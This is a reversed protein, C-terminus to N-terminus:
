KSKGGFLGQPKWLLFIFLLVFAIADKYGSPLFWVGINELLGLLYSGIVSGPIFNVSGMIAGTFGRVILDTGTFPHVSREIIVAIGAVAALASGLAFSIIAYKKDNLGVVRSLLPSDAVARLNRGVSTRHMLWFIGVFLLLSVVITGVQSTTITTGLIELAITNSNYTRVNSGFIVVILNQMLLMMSVSAILLIVNSSNRKQLPAYVLVYMLVGILTTVLITLVTNPIFSMSASFTYFLYSALIVAAGHAFHIFKNTSYILSFGAAILAYLSGAVLGNVLIQGLM